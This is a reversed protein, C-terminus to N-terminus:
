TGQKVPRNDFLTIWTLKRWLKELPGQQYKSLWFRSFIVQLYLTSLAILLTLSAGCYQYLGLGWGHYLTTGIVSSLIYNTLGMRGFPALVGLLSSGIKSAWALIFSSLLILMFSLKGYSKLVVWVSDRLKDTVQWDDLYTLAIDIPVYCCVGIVLATRWFDKNNNTLWGQKGIYLGLLFLGPIIFIRGNGWGWVIHELLGYKFNVIMLALFSSGAREADMSPPYSLQITSWQLEFAANFINYLGLPSLLLLIAYILITVNKWHRAFFLPFSLLAYLFLIDGGYFITHLMGFAFLLLMRWLFRYGYDQESSQKRQFQLYFSFGFMLSFLAFAKGSFLFYVSDSVVSDIVKLWSPSYIAKAFFNFHEIQHLLVIGALAFGRLADIMAIRSGKSYQTTNANLQNNTNLTLNGIFFAM